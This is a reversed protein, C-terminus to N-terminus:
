ANIHGQKHCPQWLDPKPSVLVIQEPLHGLVMEVVVADSLM